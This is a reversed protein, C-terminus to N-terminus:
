PQVNSEPSTTSVGWQKSLRMAIFTSISFAIGLALCITGAVLFFNDRTAEPICLGLFALGLFTLVISRTIGFLVRNGINRAPLQEVGTVFQKGTPSQLFEALEPGSSFREILKTQVEAQMRARNQRARAAIWCIFAIMGFFATGLVIPIFMVIDGAM